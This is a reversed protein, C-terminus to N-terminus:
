ISTKAKAVYNELLHYVKQTSKIDEVNHVWIFDLDKKRGAGANQWVDPTLPHTKAEIGFFEMVEYVKGPNLWDM